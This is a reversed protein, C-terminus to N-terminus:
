DTSSHLQFLDFDPLLAISCLRETAKRKATRQSSKLLAFNDQAQYNAEWDELGEDCLRGFDRQNSIWGLLDQKEEYTLGFHDAHAFDNRCSYRWKTQAEQVRQPQGLFTQHQEVVIKLIREREYGGILVQMM